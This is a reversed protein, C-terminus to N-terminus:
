MEVNMGPKGQFFRWRKGQLQTIGGELPSTTLLETLRVPSLDPDGVAQFFGEGSRLKLNLNPLPPRFHLEAPAIETEVVLQLM